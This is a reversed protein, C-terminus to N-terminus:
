SSYVDSSPKENKILMNKPLDLTRIPFPINIDNEDFAKKILMIAESKATAVKLANNSYIMFRAEFDISSGGFAKWLFIVEETKKVTDFNSSLVEKVLQKVFRLDSDYAVGCEIIVRTQKTQSYNKLSQEVVLKNPIYVLNNDKERITTVRLDIDVVEGEFDNTAIWDGFKLEKIYSLVVGSYTNALAGQLALGVALGAVGAGALIANLAKSLNLVGLVLFIAVLIIVLSIAQAIMKKMSKQLKSKSMLREAISSTYKSAFFAITFVLLAVFINPLSIIFADLWSTLKELMQEYIELFHKKSIAADVM